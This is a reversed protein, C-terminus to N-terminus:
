GKKAANFSKGTRPTLGRRSRLICVKGELLPGLRNKALPGKTVCCTLFAKLTRVYWGNVHEM